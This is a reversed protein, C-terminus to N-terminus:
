SEILRGLDIAKYGLQEVLKSEPLKGKLVGFVASYWWLQDEKGSNFCEWISNGSIQYDEITCSINHLKDAACVTLASVDQSMSIAGLYKISREHWDKITKDKTLIKVSDTINDGFDQRMREENYVDNPADELVDHLLATCVANDNDLEQIVLGAVALPHTIYDINTTKRKQGQHAMTAVALAKNYLSQNM